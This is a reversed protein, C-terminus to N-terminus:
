GQVRNRLADEFETRVEELTFAVLTVKITSTYQHNGGVLTRLWEYQEEQMFPVYCEIDQVSHLLTADGTDDFYDLTFIGFGNASRESAAVKTITIAGIEGKVCALQASKFELAKKLSEVQSTESQAIMSQIADGFQKSIDLPMQFYLQENEEQESAATNITLSVGIEPKSAISEGPVLAAELTLLNGLNTAPLAKDALIEAKFM